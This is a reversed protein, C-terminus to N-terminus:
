AGSGQGVQGLLRYLTAEVADATIRSPPAPLSPEVKVGLKSLHEDVVEDIKKVLRFIFEGQRREAKVASDIERDIRDAEILASVVSEMEKPSLKKGERAKRKGSNVLATFGRKKARLESTKQSISEKLLAKGLDLSRRVAWLRDGQSVEM